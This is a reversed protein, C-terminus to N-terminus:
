ANINPFGPVGPFGSSRRCGLPGSEDLSQMGCWRARRQRSSSAPPVSLAASVPHQPSPWALTAAGRRRAAITCGDGRRVTPAIRCAAHLLTTVSRQSRKKRPSPGTGDRGSVGQEARAIRSIEQVARPDRRGGVGRQARLSRRVEEVLEKGAGLLYDAVEDGKRILKRRTKKVQHPRWYYHQRRVWRLERCFFHPM